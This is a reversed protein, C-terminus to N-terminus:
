ARRRRRPVALRIAELALVLLLPGSASTGDAQCGGEVAAAGDGPNRVNHLAGSGLTLTVQVAGGPHALKIRVFGDAAFWGSAAADFAAEDAVHPLDESGVTVAAAGAALVRLFLLRPASAVTVQIQDSTTAASVVTGDYVVRQSATGTLPYIRLELAGDPTAVSPNDVYDAPALSQVDGPLMPLIAGARVYLPLKSPDPNQWTVLQGGDIAQNTWFDHWRGPPLYLQRETALSTIVPAVVLDDGFFYAHKVGYTNPDDQHVLVLPRIIPLGTEAAQKALSYIYPFLATHFAAYSRFNALAADGYSWPYQLGLRVQRHLQMIPSLAGFQTWRMFLNAPTSSPNSDQYGGIDHAWIAYGSMAASQGAVIVSPLGNGAGFNPENDGAWCAPSAQTGTFGSRSFLIGDDGLVAQIARHYEVTYGNRMEIGTRGDAYSADIPIFTGEGDDIKFGAIVGGSEEVLADLKATFWARAAPNTFDVPSGRGKWWDVLLPPGGPRSRVFYGGAVGEDYISAKGLNQGPVGEDNSQVDVFPTLWVVVKLGHHRLFQMMEQVSGFGPWFQGEYTGGQGFQDMNWEFDNYAVEWPSDFVFVSAPIGRELARTVVYRVEGGDRWHDSSLWPGFVWPPPLPARGTVATYRSLVDTLRPGYVLDLGLTSFRHEIVWRDPATARMDFFSEATSDLHVGYGRTSMFWPAVKYSQDGKTGPADTTLIHVRRGAQDLANFKEGFGYFHEDAPSGADVTSETPPSGGWDVVQYHFVGDPGSTPSTLRTTAVRRGLEQHLEVGDPIATTSLVRGLSIWRDDIRVTPPRLHVANALPAGGLGAGVISLHGSSEAVRAEVTGRQYVVSSGSPTAPWPISYAFPAARAVAEDATALSGNDDGYVFTTAHDSYAIRFYYEVTDGASFASGPIEGRYYKNNGSASAFTLPAATWSVAHTSRYLLQSGIQTQNGPNGGSGQYQNGTFVVVTAGAPPRLPARMTAIGPESGEAIHWANGIGPAAVSRAPVLAVFLLAALAAVPKGPGSGPSM